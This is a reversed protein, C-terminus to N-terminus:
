LDARSLPFSFQSLSLVARGMARAAEELNRILPEFSVLEKDQAWAELPLSHALESRLKGGGAQDHDHDHDDEQETGPTLAWM